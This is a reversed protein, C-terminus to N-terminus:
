RSFTAGRPQGGASQSILPSINEYLGPADNTMEILREEVLAATAFMEPLFRATVVEPSLVKKMFRVHLSAAYAGKFFIPVAILGEVIDPGVGLGIAFKKRRVGDLYTDTPVEGPPLRLSAQSPYVISLAIIQRRLEPSCHALFVHGTPGYTVPFSTGEPLRVLALPAEHDMSIQIVMDTGVPTTLGVPMFIKQCLGRLFPRAAQSILDDRSFGFALQRVQGLLYFSHGIADHAVYGEAVLTELIRHATTRPVNIKRALEAATMRGSYNLYYLARLGRKLSSLQRKDTM